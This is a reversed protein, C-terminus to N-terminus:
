RASAHTPISRQETLLPLPLAAYDTTLSTMTRAVVAGRAGTLADPVLELGLFRDREVPGPLVLHDTLDQRFGFRGYYPADGVLIVAAHGLRAAEAIGQRMMLTGLGEGQRDPMVAVPGVLLAPGASGATIHWFRTTGILRRGDLLSFALGAAPLQGRRLVESTKRHRDAGFCRDLLSERAPVHAPAEPLLRLM